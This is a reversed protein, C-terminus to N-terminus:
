STRRLPPRSAGASSRWLQLFAPDDAGRKNAMPGPPANGMRHPSEKGQAEDMMQREDRLRHEKSTFLVRSTPCTPVAGGSSWRGGPPPPPKARRSSLPTAWTQPGSTTPHLGHGVPGPEAAAPWGEVEGVVRMVGVMDKEGDELTELVVAWGSSPPNLSRWAAGM